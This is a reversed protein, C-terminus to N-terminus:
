RKKNKNNRICCDNRNEKNNVNENLKFKDKEQIELNKINDYVREILDLFSEKVNTNELASTEYFSANYKKALNIGEENTVVRSDKLDIKNGVITLPIKNIDVKQSALKVWNDLQEFSLKNTIDYVLYIGQANVVYQLALRQFREQGATDWLKLKILEGNKLKIEKTRLDYAITTLSNLEFSEDLFRFSLQTKGVQSNGLTIISIIKNTDNQETLESM